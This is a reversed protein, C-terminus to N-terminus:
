LCIPKTTRIWTITRHQTWLILITDQKFNPYYNAVM